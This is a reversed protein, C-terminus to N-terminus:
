TSTPSAQRDTCRRMPDSEGIYAEVEVIRGSTRQGNVRHVLIKGLLDVAVDLTPRDYFARTLVRTTPAPPQRAAAQRDTVAPTPM